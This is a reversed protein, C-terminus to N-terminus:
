ESQIKKGRTNKSKIEPKTINSGVPSNHNEIRTDNESQSIENVVDHMTSNSLHRIQNLEDELGTDKMIKKPMDSIEKTSKWLDSERISRIWDALKKAGKVMDKPGLLILALLFVLLLELPGIGFVEM